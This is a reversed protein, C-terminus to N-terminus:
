NVLEDDYSGDSRKMNLETGRLTIADSYKMINGKEPSPSTGKVEGKNVGNHRTVQCLALITFCTM